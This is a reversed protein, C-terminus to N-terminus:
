NERRKKEPNPPNSETKIITKKALKYIYVGRYKIPKSLPYGAIEHLIQPGLRDDDNFVHLFKEGEKEKKQIVESLIEQPTKSTKMWSRVKVISDLNSVIEKETLGQLAGEKRIKAEVTLGHYEYRLRDKYPLVFAAIGDTQFVPPGYKQAQKQEHQHAKLSAEDYNLNDFDCDITIEETVIKYETNKLDLCEIAEELQAGHLSPQCFFHDKLMEITLDEIIMSKGNEINTIISSAKGSHCSREGKPTFPCKSYGDSALLVSEVKFKGMVIPADKAEELLQSFIRGPVLLEMSQSDKAAELINSAVTAMLYCPIRAKLLTEGDEICVSLLRDGSKLFGTQTIVGPQMYREVEEIEKESLDFVTRANESIPLISAFKEKYVSSDTASYLSM